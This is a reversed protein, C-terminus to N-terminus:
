FFKNLFAWKYITDYKYLNPFFDIGFEDDPLGASAFYFPVECVINGLFLFFSDGFACLLIHGLQSPMQVAGVAELGSASM